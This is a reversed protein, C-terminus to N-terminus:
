RNPYNPSLVYFGSDKTKFNYIFPKNFFKCLGTCLKSILWPTALVVAAGEEQYHSYLKALSTKFHPFCSRKVAFSHIEGRLKIVHMSRKSREPGYQHSIVESHFTRGTAKGTRRLQEMLSFVM